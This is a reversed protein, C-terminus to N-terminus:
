SAIPQGDGVLSLAIQELGIEKGSPEVTRLLRQILSRFRTSAVSYFNHKGDRRMEILGDLRLLALHHSILPQSAKLVNCLTTVDKEGNTALFTVIRLRTQDSLLKFTKLLDEELQQPLIPFSVDRVKSKRM